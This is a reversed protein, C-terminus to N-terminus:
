VILIYGCVITINYKFIINYLIITHNGHKINCQIHAVCGMLDYTNFQCM